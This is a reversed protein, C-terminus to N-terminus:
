ESRGTTRKRASDARKARGHRRRSRKHHLYPAGRVAHYVATGAAGFLQHQTKEQHTQDAATGSQAVPRNAQQATKARSQSEKKRILARRRGNYVMAPTSQLGGLLNKKRFSMNKRLKNAQVTVISRKKWIFRAPKAVGRASKRLLNHIHRALWQGARNLLQGLTLMYLAWGLALGVLTYGRLLGDGIGLFFYFALMTCVFAYLLDQVLLYGWSAQPRLLRRVLRLLEYLVGLVFGFGLSAFFLRTQDGLNLLYIMHQSETARTPAAIQRGLNEHCSLT